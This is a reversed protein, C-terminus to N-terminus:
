EMNVRFSDTWRMLIRRWNSLKFNYGEFLMSHKIRAMIWNFSYGLFHNITRSSSSSFFLVLLSVTLSESQTWWKRFMDHNYEHHLLTWQTFLHQLSRFESLSPRGVNQSSARLLWCHVHSIIWNSTTSSISRKGLSHTEM